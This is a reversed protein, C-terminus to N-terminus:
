DPNQVSNGMQPNLTLDDLPIKLVTKNSNWNFKANGRSLPAVQEAPYTGPKVAEFACMRKWSWFDDGEFLLERQRERCIEAILGAQTGGIIPDELKRDVYGAIARKRLLNYDALAAATNGLTANIEARTIVLEASRILPLSQMGVQTQQTILGWKMSVRQNGVTAAPTFAVNATLQAFRKDTIDDFISSTTVPTNLAPNPTPRKLFFRAQGRSFANGGSQNSLNTAGATYGQTATTNNVLRLIEESNAPPSVFGIANFPVLLDTQLVFLKGGTEPTSSITGPTAGIVRNIATLALQYSAPTAQQFYVKALIAIAAAKTARFKYAPFSAHLSTNFNDPLLEIAKELDAIIQQYSEAVTSRGVGVSGDTSIKLPIMIGSNPAGSNHGFQHGWYKVAQFFCLARMFYAEGMLRNKQLAFDVDKPPDTEAYHLVSNAMAVSAYLNRSLRAVGVNNELIIFNYAQNTLETVGASPSPFTLRGAAMAEAFLIHDFGSAFQINAPGQAIWRGYAGNIIGDLNATSKNVESAALESTPPLELDKCSVFVSLIFAAIISIRTTKM